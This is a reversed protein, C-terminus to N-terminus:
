FGEPGLNALNPSSNLFKDPSDRRLILEGDMSNAAPVVGHLNTIGAIRNRNGTPNFLIRMIFEQDFRVKNWCAGLFNVISTAIRLPSRPCGTEQDFDAIDRIGLFRSPTQQCGGAEESKRDQPAVRFNEGVNDLAIGTEPAKIKIRTQCSKWHTRANHDLLPNFAGCLLGEIIEM